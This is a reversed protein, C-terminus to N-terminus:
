LLLSIGIGILVGVAGAAVFSTKKERPIYNKFKKDQLRINYSLPGIEIQIPGEYTVVVDRGDKTLTVLPYVVEPDAHVIMYYMQFMEVLESWQYEYTLLDEAEEYSIAPERSDAVNGSM